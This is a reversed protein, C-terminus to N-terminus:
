IWRRVSAKYHRYPEGFKAELYREERAIVAYRIILVPVVVLAVRRKEPYLGSVRFYSLDLQAKWFSSFPTGMRSKERWSGFQTKWRFRRQRM